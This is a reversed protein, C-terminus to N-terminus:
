PTKVPVNYGSVTPCKRTACFTSKYRIAGGSVTPRKGSCFIDLNKALRYRYSAKKLSDFNISYIRYHEIFKYIVEKESMGGNKQNFMIQEFLTEHMYDHVFQDIRIIRTSTLFVAPRDSRSETLLWPLEATYTDPITQRRDDEVATKNLLLSGIYDGIVRGPVPLADGPKLNEKITLFNLLHPRM